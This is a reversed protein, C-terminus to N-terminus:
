SMIPVMKGISTEVLGVSSDLPFDEPLCQALGSRFIRAADRLNECIIIDVPGKGMQNRKLLGQALTPYIHPLAAPGVATAIIDATAVEQAVQTTNQANAARVNEVWITQPHIDKIEVRYRRERNLADILSSAIDVFVVEYGARSFLQGIFSRGIKGAGFQLLKKRGM